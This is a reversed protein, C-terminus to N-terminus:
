SEGGSTTRLVVLTSQTSDWGVAWGNSQDIMALRSLVVATPAVLREDPRQAPETAQLQEATPPSDPAPGAPTAPLRPTVTCGVLLLTLLLSGLTRM